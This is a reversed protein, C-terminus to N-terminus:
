LSKVKTKPHNIAIYAPCTNRSLLFRLHIVQAKPM